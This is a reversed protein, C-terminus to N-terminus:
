MKGDLVFLRSLGAPANNVVELVSEHLRCLVGDRVAYIAHQWAALATVPKNTPVIRCIEQLYVHDAVPSYLRTKPPATVRQDAAVTRWCPTILFCLWLAVLLRMTCVKGGIFNSEAAAGVQRPWCLMACCGFPFQCTLM